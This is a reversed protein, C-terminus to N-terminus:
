SSAPPAPATMGWANSFIEVLRRQTAAEIETERKLEDLERKFHGLAERLRREQEQREKILEARFALVTDALEPPLKSLDLKEV